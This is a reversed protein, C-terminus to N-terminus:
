RLPRLLNEAGFEAASMSSHSVPTSSAGPLML